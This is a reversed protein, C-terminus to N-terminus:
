NSRPMRYIGILGLTEMVSSMLGKMGETQVEYEKM